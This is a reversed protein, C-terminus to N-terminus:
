GLIIEDEYFNQEPLMRIGYDIASQKKFKYKHIIDYPILEIQSFTTTGICDKLRAPNTTLLDLPVSFSQVIEDSNVWEIHLYKCLVWNVISQNVVSCYINNTKIDELYHFLNNEVLYNYLDLTKDKIIRTPKYPQHSTEYKNYLQMDVLLDQLVDFTNSIIGYTNRPIGLMDAIQHQVPSVLNCNICM